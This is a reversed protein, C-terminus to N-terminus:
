GAGKKKCRLYAKQVVGPLEGRGQVELLKELEPSKRGNPEATRMSRYANLASEVGALQQAEPDSAKAPNEIIFAGMALSYQIVVEATHPYTKESVGGLSDLCVTVTIDPADTLWGFAWSREGQLRSDLPARELDHVATVFRLRDQPSSPTDTRALAPVTCALLALLLAPLAPIRMRRNHIVPHIAALPGSTSVRWQEGFRPRGCHAQAM